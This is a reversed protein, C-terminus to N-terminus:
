EVTISKDFRKRDRKHDSIYTLSIIQDEGQIGIAPFFKKEQFSNSFLAGIYQGNKFFGLQGNIGDFVISILDGM